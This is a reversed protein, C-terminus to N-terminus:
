YSPTYIRDTDTDIIFDIEIHYHISLKDFHHLRCFMVPLDRIDTINNKAQLYKQKLEKKSCKRVTLLVNHIYGDIEVILNTV